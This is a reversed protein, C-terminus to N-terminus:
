TTEPREGLAEWCHALLMDALALEAYRHYIQNELRGVQLVESACPCRAPELQTLVWLAAGRDRLRSFQEVMASLTYGNMSFLVLLTRPGGEIEQLSSDRLVRVIKGRKALESQIYLTILSSYDMGILLVDECDLIARALRAMQGADVGSLCRQIAAGIAHGSNQLGIGSFDSPDNGFATRTIGGAVNSVRLNFRCADKFHLFDDYGMTRCFRTITAPSVHCAQSLQTITLGDLEDFHLLCYRAVTQNTEGRRDEAAFLLLQERALLM